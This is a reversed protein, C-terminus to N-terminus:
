FTGQYTVTPDSLVDQESPQPSPRPHSLRPSERIETGGGPSRLQTFPPARRWRSGPAAVGAGAPGERGLASTYIGRAHAHTYVEQCLLSAETQWGEPCLAPVIKGRIQWLSM